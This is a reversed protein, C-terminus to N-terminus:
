RRISLHIAFRRLSPKKATELGAEGREAAREVATEREVARSPKEGEPKGPREKLANGLTKKIDIVIEASVGGPWGKLAGEGFVVAEAGRSEIRDLMQQLQEAEGDLLLLIDQRAVQLSERKTSSNKSSDSLDIVEFEQEPLSNKLKSQLKEIVSRSFMGTSNWVVKIRGTPEAAEDITSGDKTSGDITAGDKTVEDITAGKAGNPTKRHAIVDELAEACVSALGEPDMYLYKVRPSVSKKDAFGEWVLFDKKPFKEALQGTDVLSSLYPSFFLTSGTRRSCIKEISSQDASELPVIEIVPIYFDNWLYIKLQETRKNQQLYIENWISDTCIIVQRHQFWYWASSFLILGVLLIVIPLFRKSGERTYHTKRSNETKLEEKIKNEM